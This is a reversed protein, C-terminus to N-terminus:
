EVEKTQSVILYLAYTVGLFLVAIWTAEPYLMLLWGVFLALAIALATIVAAAALIALHPSIRKIPM